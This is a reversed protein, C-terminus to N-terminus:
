NSTLMIEHYGINELDSESKASLVRHSDATMSQAVFNQQVTCDTM